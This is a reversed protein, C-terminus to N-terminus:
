CMKQSQQMVDHILSTINRYSSGGVEVAKKAKEGFERARQRREMGEDGEDMLKEIAAKVHEKKLLFGSKEDGLKTPENAGLNVGIRLIQVVLKENCFQDGFFPLTILPVGVSIGEITSNWGCHTLFAGTAPHSLILVQPAWGKVVLGRGKTREEFGDDEMWKEVQNPTMNNGRLVWIFPKKSAELGLGLEILEPSKLTGTSGLCAYIVSNTEQSDLWKLCQQENISAKNGREAKDLENRNSLSVPGICWAKKVQKYEEVYGSELEEFTNIIVGYSARDAEWMPEFIGKGSGDHDLPLQVRTFEVKNTLGPVVFYEHNSTLTDCIKSSQINHLCLLCFCCFGHFSLRPVRFKTAIKRTYYLNIDSVICAPRPTINEFLKQGADEMLNAASVFKILDEMSHLMDINEVGDPLGVEKGPFQLQLLRIPLGSEIARGISKQIRGANHPTTVMTVIVGRQALLRGIDLMPLLHGQAMFPFLVFHAQAM